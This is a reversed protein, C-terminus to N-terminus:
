RRTLQDRFELKMIKDMFEVDINTLNFKDEKLTFTVCMGKLFAFEDMYIRAMRHTLSLDMLRALLEDISYFKEDKELLFCGDKTIFEINFQMVPIGKSLMQIDDLKRLMKKRTQRKM